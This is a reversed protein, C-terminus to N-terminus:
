HGSVQEQEAANNLASQGLGRVAEMVHQLAPRHQTNWWDAFQTADHGKWVDQSHVVLQQVSNIVQEIQHAQGQLNHGLQRVAGVDMGSTIAM